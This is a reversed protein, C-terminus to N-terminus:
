ENKFKVLCLYKKEIRCLLWHSIEQGTKFLAEVIHGLYLWKEVILNLISSM